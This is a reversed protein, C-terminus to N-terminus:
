GREQMKVLAVKAHVKLGPISYVIRIGAAKMRRAWNLNNAEDFRAKLEVFVTVQKGNLAATILSSAIKSDGAIRYLTIWIEKVQPHTAAENFFRLVCTYDEYPPNLLIDHYQLYELL